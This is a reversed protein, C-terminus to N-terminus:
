NRKGPAGLAKLVFDALEAPAYQYGRLVLTDAPLGARAAVCREVNRHRFARAEADREPSDSDVVQGDIRRRLEGAPVDLFVHLVTDGAKSILAFIEDRYRPSVLTM